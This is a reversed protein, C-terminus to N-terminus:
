RSRFKKAAIVEAARGMKFLTSQLAREVIRKERGTEQIYPVGNWVVLQPNAPTPLTIGGYAEGGKGRIWGFGFNKGGTIKRGLALLAPIWGSKAFGVKKKRERIVRKISVDTPVIFPWQNTPVRGKRRQQQHLEKTAAPVFGKTRRLGRNVMEAAKSWNRKKIVRTLGSYFGRNGTKDSRTMVEPWPQFARRVGSEVAHLGIQKQDKGSETSAQGYTFPPTMRICEQVAIGAYQWLIDNLTEGSIRALESATRSFQAEDMALTTMRQNGESHLGM